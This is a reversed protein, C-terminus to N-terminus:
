REERDKCHRAAGPPPKGQSPKGQRARVLLPALRVAVRAVDRGPVGYDEAWAVFGGLGGGIGIRDVVSTADHDMLTVGDPTRELRRARECKSPHCTLWVRETTGGARWWWSLWVSEPPLPAGCLDCVDDM